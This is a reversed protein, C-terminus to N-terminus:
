GRRGLAGRIRGVGERFVDGVTEAGVEGGGAGRRIRQIGARTARRLLGLNRGIREAATLRGTPM